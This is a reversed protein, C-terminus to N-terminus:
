RRVNGGYEICAGHLRQGLQLLLVGIQPPCWTTFDTSCCRKLSPLQKNLMTLQLLVSTLLTQAILRNTYSHPM